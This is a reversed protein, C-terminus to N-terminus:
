PHYKEFASVRLSSAFRSVPTAGYGSAQGSRKKWDPMEM